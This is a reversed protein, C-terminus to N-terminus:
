GQVSLLMTVASIEIVAGTTGGTDNCVGTLQIDLVDGGALGTPTVTFNYNAFSATLTQASTTVLNSGVGGDSALYAAAALTAGVHPLATVEATLQISLAGGAVYENPLVFEFRSYDTKSAGSASEGVVLPTASGFTGPTFGMAGSPTGATGLAVFTGATKLGDLKVGYPASTEETLQTRAVTGSTSAPAPLYEFISGSGSAATLATGRLLSGTAALQGNAAAYVEAFQTIAGAAVGQRSAPDEFPIVATTVDTSIVNQELVGIEDDSAGALALYGGSLKVRLFPNFTTNVPLTINGIQKRM